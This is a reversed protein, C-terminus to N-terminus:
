MHCVLNQAPRPLKNTFFLNEFFGMQRNKSSLNGLGSKPHWIKSSLARCNINLRTSNTLQLFCLNSSFVTQHYSHHHYSNCIVFRTRALCRRTSFSDHYTTSSRCKCLISSLFYIICLIPFVSLFQNSRWHTLVRRPPRHRRGLRSNLKLFTFNIFRFIVPRKVESLFM